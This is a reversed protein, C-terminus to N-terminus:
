IYWTCSFPIGMNWWNRIKRGVAHECNLIYSKDGQLVTFGTQGLM